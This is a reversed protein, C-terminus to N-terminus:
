IERAQDETYWDSDSTSETDTDGDTGAIAVIHDLEISIQANSILYTCCVITVAIIMTKLISVDYPKM